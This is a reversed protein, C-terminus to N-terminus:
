FLSARIRICQLKEKVSAAPHFVSLIRIFGRFSLGEPGERRRELFLGEAGDSVQTMFIPLLRTPGLPNSAFEPIALLDDASLKGSM